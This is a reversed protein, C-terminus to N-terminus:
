RTPVASAIPATEATTSCRTTTGSTRPMGCPHSLGSSARRRRPPPQHSVARRSRVRISRALSGSQRQRTRPEGRAEDLPPLRPGGRRRRRQVLGSLRVDGQRHALRHRCRAHEQGYVPPANRALGGGTGGAVLWPLTGPGRYAVRGDRVVGARHEENDWVSEQPAPAGQEDRAASRRQFQRSQRCPFFRKRM